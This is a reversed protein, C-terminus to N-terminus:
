GEGWNGLEFDNRYKLNPLDLSMPFDCEADILLYSDKRVFTVEILNPILIGNAVEAQGANNGHIWVAQHTM